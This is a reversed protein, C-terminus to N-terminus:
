IGGNGGTGAGGFFFGDFLDFTGMGDSWDHNGAGGGDLNMGFGFDFTNDGAAQATPDNVQFSDLFDLNNFGGIDPYTSNITQALDTYPLQNSIQFPSIQSPASQTHPLTPRAQTPSDLNLSQMFDPSNQIDTSTTIAEQKIPRQRQPQGLSGVSNSLQSESPSEAYLDDLGMDFRPQTRRTATPFPAQDNSTSQGAHSTNSRRPPAAGVAARVAQPGFGTTSMCM